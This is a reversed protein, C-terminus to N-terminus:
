RIMEQLDPRSLLSCTQAMGARSGVSPRSPAAAVAGGVSRVVM